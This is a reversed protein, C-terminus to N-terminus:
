QIFFIEQIGNFAFFQFQFGLFARMEIFIDYCLTFTFLIM